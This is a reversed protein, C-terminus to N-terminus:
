GRISIFVVFIEQPYLRGTCLASLRLVKMHWIDQIRPAEVEQFGRTMLIMLGHLNLHAHCTVHMPTFFFVYLTQTPFVQLFSCNSLGICLCFYFILIIKFMCASSAQFSKDPESCLGTTPKTLM